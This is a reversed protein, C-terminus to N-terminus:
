LFFFAITYITILNWLSLYTRIANKKLIPNFLNEKLSLCPTFNISTIKKSILLVNLTTYYPLREHLKLEQMEKM